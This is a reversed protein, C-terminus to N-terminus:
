NYILMELFIDNLNHEKDKHAAEIETKTLRKYCTHLRQRIDARTLLNELETVEEDLKEIRKRLNELDRDM